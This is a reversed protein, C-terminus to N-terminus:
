EPAGDSDDLLPMEGEEDAWTLDLNFRTRGAKKDVKLTLDMLGRPHLAFCDESDSLPLCGNEVGELLAALYRSLEVSDVAVQYKFSNKM